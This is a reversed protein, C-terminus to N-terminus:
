NDRNIHFSTIQGLGPDPMRIIINHEWKHDTYFINSPYTEMYGKTDDGAEKQPTYTIIFSDASASTNEHKRIKFSRPLFHIQTELQVYFSCCEKMACYTSFFGRKYEILTRVDYFNSYDM